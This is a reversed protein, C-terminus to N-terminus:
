HFVHHQVAAEVNSTLSTMGTSFSLHVYWMILLYQIGTMM